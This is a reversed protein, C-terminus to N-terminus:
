SMLTYDSGPQIEVVNAWGIEMKECASLDPPSQNGTWGWSNAMMSWSGSGKGGGNFDYRDPMGLFHGSRTHNNLQIFTSFFMFYFTHTISCM